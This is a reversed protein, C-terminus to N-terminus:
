SSLQDGTSTTVTIVGKDSIALSVTHAGKTFDTAAGGVTLTGPIIDTGKKLKVEFKRGVTYDFLGLSGQMAHVDMSAQLPMGDPM